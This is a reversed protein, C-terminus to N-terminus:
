EIKASGFMTMMGAANDMLAAEPTWTNLIYAKDSGDKSFVHLGVKFTVGKDQANGENGECIVGTAPNTKRMPESWEIESYRSGVQKMISKVADDTDDSNVVVVSTTFLKDASVIWAGESDAEIIWDAPVQMTFHPNDENPYAYTQSGGAPAGGASSERTSAGGSAPDVFEALLPVITQRAKNIEQGTSETVEYFRRAYQVAEVGQGKQEARWLNWEAYRPEEGDESFLLFDVIYSNAADNGLIQGRADPGSEKVNQLMAEAYARPNDTGDFQRISILTTWNKFTEGETLFERIGEQDGRLYYEEGDFEFANVEEAEGAVALTEGSSPAPNPFMGEPPTGPEESSTGVITAKDGSIELDAWVSVMNDTQDESTVRQATWFQLLLTGDGQWRIADLGDAVPDTIADLPAAQTSSLQPVPIEQLSNGTVEYLSITRSRSAGGSVAVYKRDPSWKFDPVISSEFGYDSTGKERNWFTGFVQGTAPNKLVYVPERGEANAPVIDIEAAALGSFWILLMGVIPCVIKM